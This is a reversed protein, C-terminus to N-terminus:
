TEVDAKSQYHVFINGDKVYAWLHPKTGAYVQRSLSIGNSKYLLILTAFLGPEAFPIRLHNL